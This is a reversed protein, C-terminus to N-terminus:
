SLALQLTSVFRRLEADTRLTQGCGRSAHGAGTTDCPQLRAPAPDPCDGAAAANRRADRALCRARAVPWRARGPDGFDECRAERRDDERHTDDCASRGYASRAPRGSQRRSVKIRQKLSELWQESSLFISRRSGRWIPDATAIGERVFEADTEGWKEDEGFYPMLAAVCLWEPAAERGATARYSSWRSDESRGVMKARVPNLVVCGALRKMYAATEVHVAKYQEGNIQPEAFFASSSTLWPAIM